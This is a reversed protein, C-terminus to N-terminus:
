ANQPGGYISVVMKPAVWSSINVFPFLLLRFSTTCGKMLLRHMEHIKEQHKEQECGMVGPLIVQLM